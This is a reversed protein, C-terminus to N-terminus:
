FIETDGMKINWPTEQLIRMEKQTISIGKAMLHFTKSNNKQFGYQDIIRDEISGIGQGWLSLTNAGKKKALKQWFSFLEEAFKEHFQTHIDVDILQMHTTGDERPYLKWVAYGKRKHQGHITYAFYNSQPKEGYRWALYRQNKILHVADQGAYTHSVPHCVRTPMFSFCADERSHKQVFHLLNYIFYSRIAVFGLHSHIPMSLDNPFGFLLKVGENRAIKFLMKGIQSFVGKGQWSPHVMASLSIGAAFRKGQSVLSRRLYAWHGVITNSEDVAVVIRKKDFYHRWQWQTFPFYFNPFLLHGLQVIGKEDGKRFRRVSIM